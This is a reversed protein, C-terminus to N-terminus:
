RAEPLREHVPAPAERTASLALRTLVALALGAFTNVAVANFRWLWSGLGTGLMYGLNLAAVNISITDARQEPALESALPLFSVIGFEFGMVVVVVGALAAALSGTLRPLLVCGAGLLILGVAVSRRKGLRDVVGASAFEAAAEAIGVVISALGLAGLSLGFKSELFAGYVIFVVQTAAMLGMGVLTGMAVHRRALLKGWRRLTGATWGGASEGSGVPRPARGGPLGAVTFWWGALGLISLALWPARWGLREMLLGSAPVGILWALSWALEALAMARGRREYPVRDGLYALIAPDYLSKAVGFVVFGLAALWYHQALGITLVGATFLLTGAEMVRRRGYRDALPGAVPAILGTLGSLAVFQGLDTLPVGLGRSFAPLFPYIIRFPVNLVTRAFIIVPLSRKM